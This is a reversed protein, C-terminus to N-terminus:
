GAKAAALGLKKSLRGLAEQEDDTLAAMLAAIRRAHLPFVRGILQRGQRTLTVEVLRRDRTDRTRRVLQQRELNDVVTTMNPNSRLLKRGLDKQCMPGLHLLAELVALQGPTLGDAALAQTLRANLSESARSVKIFTDLARTERPTGKFHTPM